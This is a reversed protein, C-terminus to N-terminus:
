ADASAAYLRLLAGLFALTVGLTTPFRDVSRHPPDWAFAFLLVAPALLLLASGARSLNKRRAGADGPFAGFVLNLLAAFLLYVHDARFMYRVEPPFPAVGPFGLKMYVGTALFLALAAWGTRKHLLALNMTM